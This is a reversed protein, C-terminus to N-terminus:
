PSHHEYYHVKIRGYILLNLLLSRKLVGEHM